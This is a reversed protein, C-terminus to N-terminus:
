RRQKHAYMATDARRLLEAAALPASPLSMAIGVSLGVTFTGAETQVPEAVAALLRRRIAEVAPEDVHTCIAVFEDGGLRAITDTPRVCRELRQAIERLVEDGAAHGGTDNVAKFGDLDCYFVGVSQGASQGAADLATRLRELAVSRNPLGTLGDRRAANRLGAERARQETVDTMAVVAGTVSGDPAHLARGRCSVATAPQDAPAIIIVADDVSGEWLARLLPVEEPAVPTVGDAHFLSYATSFADPELEADIDGGQWERTQRNFLTLRGDADCAVIGVDVSDLLVRDFEARSQLQALTAELLDRAQAAEAALREQRRSQARREFLVGLIGALDDLRALRDDTLRRPDEDFVCLTGIVLQEAGVRIPSAAYCRVAGLAGTVWPNDAFRDDQRADPAHVSTGARVTVACMSDVAPSRSGTFGVTAIQCQSREDLVNVTAKTTGAVHAALRVVAEVEADVELPAQVSM